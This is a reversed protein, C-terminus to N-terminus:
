HYPTRRYDHAPLVMVEISRSRYRNPLPEVIVRYRRQMAAARHGRASEASGRRHMTAGPKPSEVTASHLM